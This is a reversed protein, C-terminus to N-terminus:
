YDTNIHGWRICKCCVFIHRTSTAGIMISSGWSRVYAIDMELNWNSGKPCTGVPPNKQTRHEIRSRPRAENHVIRLEWTWVSQRVQRPPRM